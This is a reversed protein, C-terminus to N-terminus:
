FLQLSNTNSYMNACFSVIQESYILLAIKMRKKQGFMDHNVRKEANITLVIYSVETDM